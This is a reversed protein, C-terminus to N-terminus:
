FMSKISTKPSNQDYTYHGFAKHYLVQNDIGFLLVASPFVSDSVASEMLQDLKAFDYTKSIKCSCSYIFAVSILLVLSFSKYNKM